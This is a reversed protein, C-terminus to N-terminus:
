ILGLIHDHLHNVCPNIPLHNHTITVSGGIESALPAQLQLADAVAGRARVVIAIDHHAVDIAEAPDDLVFLDVQIFVIRNRNLEPSGPESFRTGRHDQLVLNVRGRRSRSKRWIGKDKAYLSAELFILKIKNSLVEQAYIGGVISSLICPELQECQYGSIMPAM